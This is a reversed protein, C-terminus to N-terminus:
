IRVVSELWSCDVVEFNVASSQSRTLFMKSSDGGVAKGHSDDFTCGVRVIAM